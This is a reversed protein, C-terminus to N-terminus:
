FFLISFGSRFSLHFLYGIYDCLHPIYGDRIFKEHYFGKTSNVVSKTDEFRKSKEKFFYKETSNISGEDRILFCRM